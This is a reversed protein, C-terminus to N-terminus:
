TRRRRLTDAALHQIIRLAEPDVTRDPLCVAHSFLMDAIADVDDVDLGSCKAWAELLRPRSRAAKPVLPWSVVARRANPNDALLEVLVATRLADM